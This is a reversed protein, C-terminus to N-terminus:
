KTQINQVHISLLQEKSYYEERSGFSVGPVKERM